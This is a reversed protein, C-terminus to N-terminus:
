LHFVGKIKDLTSMSSKEELLEIRNQLAQLDLSERDMDIPEAIKASLEFELRGIKGDTASNDIDIFDHHKKVFGNELMSLIIERTDDSENYFVEINGNQLNNQIMARDVM